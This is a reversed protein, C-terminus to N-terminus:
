QNAKGLAKLFANIKAIEAPNNKVAKIAKNKKLQIAEEEAEFGTGKIEVPIEPWNEMIGSNTLIPGDIINNQSDIKEALIIGEHESTKDPLNFWVNYYGGKRYNTEETIRNVM